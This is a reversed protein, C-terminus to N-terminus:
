SHHILVLAACGLRCNVFSSEHVYQFLKELPMEMRRHLLNCGRCPSSPPDPRLIMRKDFAFALAM